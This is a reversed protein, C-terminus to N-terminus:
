VRKPLPGESTKHHFPHLKKLWREAFLYTNSHLCVIGFGKGYTCSQDEHLIFEAVAFSFAVAHEHACPVRRDKLTTYTCDDLRLILVPPYNSEKENRRSNIGPPLAGPYEDNVTDPLALTICSGLFTIYPPTYGKVLYCYSSM